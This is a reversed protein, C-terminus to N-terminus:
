CKNNGRKHNFIKEKALDELTTSSIIEDIKENIKKWLPRTLCNNSRPCNDKGEGALDVCFVINLSDEVAKIIDKVTIEKPPKSIIYGGQFGRISKLLKAKRLKTFLKEVYDFSLGQRKCIDAVSVPNGESHCILDIVARLAYRSKTSLKM